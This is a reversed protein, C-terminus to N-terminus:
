NSPARSTARASRMSARNCIKRNVGNRELQEAPMSSAYLGVMSRAAEKAAASDLWGLVRDVCRHRAVALGAAKEAGQKVNEVLYDYAERTYSLAHHVGDSIEGAVRFSRPGRM